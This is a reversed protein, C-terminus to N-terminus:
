RSRIDNERDQQYYKDKNYDSADANDYGRRDFSERSMNASCIIGGFVIRIGAAATPPIKRYICQSSSQLIRTM